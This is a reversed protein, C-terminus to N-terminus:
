SIMVGIRMQQQYNIKSLARWGSIESHLGLPFFFDKDGTVLDAKDLRKSTIYYYYFSKKNGMVNCSELYARVKRVGDRYKEKRGRFNRILIVSVFNFLCQLIVGCLRVLRM